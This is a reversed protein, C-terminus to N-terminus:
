FFLIQWKERISKFWLIGLVFGMPEYNEFPKKPPSINPVQPSCGRVGLKKDKQYRVEGNDSIVFALFGTPSIYIYIYYMYLVYINYIYVYIYIYIYIYIYVYICFVSVFVCICICIYM